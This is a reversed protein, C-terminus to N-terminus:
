RSSGYRSKGRAVQDFSLDYSVVPLHSEDEANKLVDFHDDNNELKEEEEKEEEKEEENEKKDEKEEEEKNLKKEDEEEDEKKENLKKVMECSENYKNLLEEVTMEGDNTKVLMHEVAYEPKGENMAKEDAQNILKVFGIEKKSKPLVVSMGELDLDPTEVKERKFLNLMTKAGKNISNSLTKLNSEKKENYDKFEDPTLIISEAYRPDNVLALHDYEGSLVEQSYDIGHWRGGAGSSVIKYANSLRYGQRIADHGNDSVVIFECWHKGDAPNYFSKVVYGDANPVSEPSVNEKHFVFVPKGEFTKDMDRMTKEGVFITLTNSDDERYQACGEAFHLGYFRKPYQSANKIDTM